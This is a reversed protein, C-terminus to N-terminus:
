KEHVGLEEEEEEFFFVSREYTCSSKCYGGESSVRPKRSRLVVILTANIDDLFVFCTESNAYSRCMSNVAESLEACSTACRKEIVDRSKGRDMRRGAATSMRTSWTPKCCRKTSRMNRPMALTWSRASPSIWPSFVNLLKRTELIACQRVWTARSKTPYFKFFSNHLM